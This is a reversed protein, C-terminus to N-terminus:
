LKEARGLAPRSRVKTVWAQVCEPTKQDGKAFDLKVKEYPAGLEELAWLINVARTQPAYHLVLAM